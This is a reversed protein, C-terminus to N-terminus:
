YTLMVIILKNTLCPSVQNFPLEEPIEFGDGDSVDETFIDWAQPPSALIAM